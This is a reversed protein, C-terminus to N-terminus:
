FDNQTGELKEIYAAIKESIDKGTYDHPYYELAARIGEVYGRILFYKEADSWNRVLRDQEM